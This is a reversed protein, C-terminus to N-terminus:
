QYGLRRRCHRCPALGVGALKNPADTGEELAGKPLSPKYTLKPLPVTAMTKSEVIAGPYEAGKGGAWLAMASKRAAM